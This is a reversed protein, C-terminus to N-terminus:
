WTPLSIFTTVAPHEEVPNLVLCVGEVNMFETIARGAVPLSGTAMKVRRVLPVCAIPM